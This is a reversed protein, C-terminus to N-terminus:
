QQETKMQNGQSTAQFFANPVDASMVDQHEYADIICTFFIAEVSATLSASDEKGLHERTLKGNFVLRGEIERSSKESLHAPALQARIRENPNVDAVSM